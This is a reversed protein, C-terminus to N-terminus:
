QIRMLWGKLDLIKWHGGNSPGEHIVKDTMKTLNKLVTRKSIGIEEAIQQTTIFPNEKILEFIKM